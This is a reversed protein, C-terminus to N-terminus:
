LFLTPLPVKLLIGFIIYVVGSISISYVPIWKPKEYDLLLMALSTLLVTDLFFGIKKLLFVYAFMLAISLLLRVFRVDKFRDKHEARRLEVIFDVISIVIILVAILKPFTKDSSRFSLASIYIYIGFLFFAAPCLLSILKNKQM